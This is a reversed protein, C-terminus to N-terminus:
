DLLKDVDVGDKYLAWVPSELRLKQVGAIVKSIVTDVEIDTTFRGLSFRISSKAYDDSAGMALLVHSPSVSASSCAAGSSVAIEQNFSAILGEADVYKFTVNSVHPLRPVGAGNIMVADLNTFAKELNDRQTKIKKSWDLMESQAIQCAIGMGVIGPVNLTGSRVGGQHGGGNIQEALKIRPNTRSVYLAGVGKPGYIKHGSFALLHVGAQKPNVQIKGVAQTADSMLLVRKGACIKGIKDMPHIVGTENNAWMISVLITDDTIANDLQDLSIMGNSDVDLYTIKGGHKQIYKCTDLVAPHETKVTIIHNGSRRYMEWVGKLALNVSETAGSTFVIERDDVNLINAIQHKAQDVAKEAEWGFPHSRSAPNGPKQYFYPMMGEIVRPDVPTTANYDMYILGPRM